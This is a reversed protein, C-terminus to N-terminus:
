EPAMFAPTGIIQGERTLAGQEPKVQTEIEQIDMTLSPDDTVLPIKVAPSPTTILKAVGWDLLLVEGFDGLLVNAGKLDRHIVGRAHAYAVTNCVSLFAQVLERLALPSTTGEARNRHYAHAADSLTRGKVFRMTYFTEDPTPIDEDSTHDRKQ